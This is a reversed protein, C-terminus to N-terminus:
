PWGCVSQVSCWTAGSAVNVSIGSCRRFRERWARPEVASSGVSLAASGAETAPVAEAGGV